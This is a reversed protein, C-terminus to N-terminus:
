KRRKSNKLTVPYKRIIEEIEKEYVNNQRIGNGSISYHQGSCQCGIDYCSRTYVTFGRNNLANRIKSYAM